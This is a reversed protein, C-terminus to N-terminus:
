FDSSNYHITLLNATARHDITIAALKPVFRTLPINYYIPSPPVTGSFRRRESYESAVCVTVKETSQGDVAWNRFVKANGCPVFHRMQNEPPCPATMVGWGQGRTANAMYLMEYRAVKHLWTASRLGGQDWQWWGIVVNIWVPSAPWEPCAQGHRRRSGVGMLRLDAGIWAICLIISADYHGDRLNVWVDAISISPIFIFPAPGRTPIM